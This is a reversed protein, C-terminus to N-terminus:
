WQGDGDEASINVAAYMLGGVAFWAGMTPHGLALLVGGILLLM